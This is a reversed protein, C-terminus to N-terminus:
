SGGVRRLVYAGAAGPDARWGDPVWTTCDAEAIVAPGTVPRRDPAPLDTVAVPSPSAARARLAIVEVPDDPRAYGNRRAHLAHFDASDVTPEHSQGAARTWVPRM